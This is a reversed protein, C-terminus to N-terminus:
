RKKGTLMGPLRFPLTVPYFLIKFFTKTGKVLSDWDLVVPSAIYISSYTGTIVGIILTLAFGQLSSGGALYIVVVTFLVTLSTLITRSLTQNVSADLIDSTLVKKGQLAMNERIRDFVVITDNVSYGLITLFAALSPLGIKLNGFVGAWDALAICGATILIDHVLAVVAGVGFRLAHFRLGLYAVIMVCGLLVAVLARLKLEEAVTPGIHTIKQVPRAQSFADAIQKQIEAAGDKPLSLKLDSVLMEPAYDTEGVIVKGAQPDIRATEIFHKVETFSMPQKLKMDVQVRGAAPAAPAAAADAAGTAPDVAKAPEEFTVQGARRALDGFITDMKERIPEYSLNLRFEKSETETPIVAAGVLDRQELLTQIDQVTSQETLTGTVTLGEIKAVPVGQLESGAPLETKFQDLVKRDAKLTFDTGATGSPTVQIDPFQRKDFELALLQGEIPKDLSLELEAPANAATEKLDCKTISYNTKQLGAWVLASVAKGLASRKEAAFPVDRLHVLFTRARHTEPPVVSDLGPLNYVDGDSALADRVKMETVANQLDLDLSRGDSTAKLIDGKQFLGAETLKQEVTAKVGATDVGTGRIRVGFDTLGEATATATRLGQVEADPVGGKALRDRVESVATPKALSLQVLSGGTFDIDFLAHGRAFFVIIGILALSGTGIYCYKRVRAFGIKQRTLLRLMKFERLVNNEVMTELALRTVVVATFLSLLLGLALTVAFGRVPGTGVLYLIAATLITTVQADFIVTFARDHGTRLALRVGKGAESEERIREYILINADVAMGITLAIGAMGPLSLAAGLVCLAGLLLLLNMALAGDAVLGCWMYYIAMFLFVLGAAFALAVMSRQISDRGLQPGVTNEQALEISMPLSGARLVNILDTVSQHTFTGTIEGRGAIKEQIVPASKLIGDLIIALCWGRNMETVRGFKASGIANFQFGVAPRLYRDSIETLSGPDLDEGTVEAEGKRVLYFDKSPDADEYMKVYGEPVKGHAADDYYRRFKPDDGGRPVGLKFELKGMKELRSKLQEVEVVTAHPVQILIRDSEVPQIRYEKVNSPDIRRKLVDISDALKGGFKEGEQQAKLKYVLETGGALDLGLRIRGQVYTTKDEIITGDDRREVLRSVVDRRGLALPLFRKWTLDTSVVYQDGVSVHHRQAEEPTRATRKEVREVSIPVAVPPYLAYLSVVVPIVVFLMWKM